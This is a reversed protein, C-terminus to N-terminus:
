NAIGITLWSLKADFLQSKSTIVFSNVRKYFSFLPHDWGSDNDGINGCSVLATYSENDSYSVSLPITVDVNTTSDWYGWQICLGNM